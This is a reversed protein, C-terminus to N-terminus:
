APLFLGESICLTIQEEFADRFAKAALSVPRGKAVALMRTVSFDRIPVAVLGKWITSTRAVSSPMVVVGLGAHVLQAAGEGGDIQIVPQVSGHQAEFTNRLGLSIIIPLKRLERAHVSPRAALKSDVPCFVSIEQTMLPTFRIHEQNGPDSVIAMDITGASLRHLADETPSETLELQVQPFRERFDLATRGYLAQGVTPASSMRVTGRVDRNFGRMGRNFDFVDQTTSQVERLIFRARELLMLGSDTLEVGAISRIFLPGGMSDELLRMQRSVASQAVHLLAAAASISGKDAVALFYRIQRLDM